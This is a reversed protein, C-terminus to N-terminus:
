RIDKISLGGRIMDVHSERRGFALARGGASLGSTKVDKFGVSTMLKDIAKPTPFFWNYSPPGKLDLSCGFGNSAATEVLCTGGDKLCNFLIRFTMVPDTVHYLVGPFLVIDFTDYFSPDNLDFLSMHLPTLNQVDFARKLFHVMDAYKKVEEVATVQAGMACLALSTGGTWVGIDLVRTGTLDLSLGGFKDVYTSLLTYPRDGWQGEVAFPGFDHNHGWQFNITFSRQGEVGSLNEMEADRAGSLRDLEAKFDEPSMDVLKDVQYASMLGKIHPVSKLSVSKLRDKVSTPIYWKIARAIPIM